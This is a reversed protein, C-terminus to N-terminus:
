SQATIRSIRFERNRSDINGRPVKLIRIGREHRLIISRLDEVFGQFFAGRKSLLRIHYIRSASSYPTLDDPYKM